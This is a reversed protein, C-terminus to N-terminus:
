QYRLACIWFPRRLVRHRRSVQSTRAIGQVSARSLNGILSAGSGARLTIEGKLTKLTLVLKWTEDMKM